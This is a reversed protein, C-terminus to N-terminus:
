KENGTKIEKLEQKTDLLKKKLAKTENKLGTVIDHIESIKRKEDEDFQEINSSGKGKRSM